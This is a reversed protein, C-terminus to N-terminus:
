RASQSVRHEQLTTHRSVCMCVTAQDRVQQLQRAVLHKQQLLDQNAKRVEAELALVEAHSESVSASQDEVFRQAVDILPVYM